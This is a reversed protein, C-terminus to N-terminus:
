YQTPRNWSFSAMCKLEEAMWHPESRHFAIGSCLLQNKHTCASLNQRAKLELSHDDLPIIAVQMKRVHSNLFLNLRSKETQRSGTPVSVASSPNFLVSFSLKTWTFLGVFLASVRTATSNLITTRCSPFILYVYLICAVSNSSVWFINPWRMVSLYLPSISVYKGRPLGFTSKQRRNGFNIIQSFEGFTVHLEHLRCFYMSELRFLPRKPIHINLCICPCFLFRWNM